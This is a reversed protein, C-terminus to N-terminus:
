RKEKRTAAHYVWDFIKSKKRHQDIVLTNCNVQWDTREEYKGYTFDFCKRVNLVAELFEALSIEYGYYEENYVLQSKPKLIVPSEGLTVGQPWDKPLPVPLSRGYVNENFIPLEVENGGSM